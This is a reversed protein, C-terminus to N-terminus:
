TIDTAHHPLLVIPCLQATAPLIGVRRILLIDGIALGVDFAVTFPTCHCAWSATLPIHDAHSQSDRLGLWPRHQSSCQALSGSIVLQSLIRLTQLPLAFTPRPQPFYTGYLATPSKVPM